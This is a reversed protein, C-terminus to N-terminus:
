KILSATVINILNLLKLLVSNVLNIVNLWVLSFSTNNKSDAKTPEYCLEGEASRQDFQFAERNRGSFRILGGCAQEPCM